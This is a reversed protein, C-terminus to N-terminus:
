IKSRGDRDDGAAIARQVSQSVKEWAEQLKEDAASVLRNQVLAAAARDYLREGGVNISLIFVWLVGYCATRLLWKLAAGM